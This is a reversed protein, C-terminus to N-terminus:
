FLVQFNLIKRLSIGMILKPFVKRFSIAEIAVSLPTPPPPPLPPLPPPHPPPPPPPPHAPAWLSSLSLNFQSTRPEGDRIIRLTETARLVINFEPATHFVLHVDQAARGQYVPLPRQPRLAVDFLADCLEPATHFHPPRGPSGRDWYDTPRQPCLAVNASATLQDCCQVWFSHTFTSTATRPERDRITRLDRHVYLLM